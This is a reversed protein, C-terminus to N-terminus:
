YERGGARGVAECDWGREMVYYGQMNRGVDDREGGSEFGDGMGM